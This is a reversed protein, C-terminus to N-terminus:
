SPFQPYIGNIAIIYSVALTPMVNQHGGSGGSVGVVALALDPTATPKEADPRMYLIDNPVSPAGLAVGTGPVSTTATNASANLAHTHAPMGSIDLTVTVEGGSQGITRTVPPTETDQGQGVPVAGINSKLPSALNPLAFTNPATGGFTNGILSFLVPYDNINLTSGDCLHWDQPVQPGSFIRIEGAYWDM